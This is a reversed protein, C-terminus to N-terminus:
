LTTTLISHSSTQKEEKDRKSGEDGRPQTIIDAEQVRGEAERRVAGSQAAEAKSPASQGARHM